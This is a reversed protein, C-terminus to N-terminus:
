TLQGDRCSRLHTGHVYVVICCCCLLSCSRNNDNWNEYRHEGPPEASRIWLQMCGADFDTRKQAQTRTNITDM